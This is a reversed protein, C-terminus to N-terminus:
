RASRRGEGRGQYGGHSRRARGESRGSQVQLLPQCLVLRSLSPVEDLVDLVAQLPMERGSPLQGHRSTGFSMRLGPLPVFHYRVNRQKTTPKLRIPQINAIAFHRPLFLLILTSLLFHISFFPFYVSAILPKTNKDVDVDQCSTALPPQLM